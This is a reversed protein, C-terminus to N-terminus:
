CRPSWFTVVISPPPTFRVAGNEVGSSERDARIRASGSLPAGWDFAIQPTLPKVERNGWLQYRRPVDKGSRRARHVGHGSAEGTHWRRTRCSRRRWLWTPRRSGADVGAAMECATEESVAGHKELTSHSVGLIKEKMANPVRGSRRGSLGLQRRRQHPPSRDAWGHVVRRRRAEPRQKLLEGVVMEMTVDGEGYVYDAVRDRMAAVLRPLRAAAEAQFARSPSVCPSRRPLAARFANGM